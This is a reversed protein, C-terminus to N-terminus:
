LWDFWFTCCSATSSLSAKSFAPLLEEDEPCVAGCMSPDGVPVTLAVLTFTPLLFSVM